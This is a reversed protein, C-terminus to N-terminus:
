GVIALRSGSTERPGLPPPSRRSGSIHFGFVVDRKAGGRIRRTVDQALLKKQRKSERDAIERSLHAAARHGNGLDHAALPRHRGAGRDQQAAGKPNRRSKEEAELHIM